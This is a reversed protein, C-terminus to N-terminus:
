SPIDGRLRTKIVEAADSALKRATESLSQAEACKALADIASADGVRGLASIMTSRAQADFKEDVVAEALVPSDEPKAFDAIALIIATRQQITNDPQHYMEVVQTRIGPEDNALLGILAAIRVRKESDNLLTKLFAITEPSPIRALLDAACTRTTGDQDPKCMERLRFAMSPEVVRRLANMALAKAGPKGQPDGLADLLPNLNELGLRKLETGIAVVRPDDLHAEGNEALAKWESLLEAATTPAQTKVPQAEGAPAVTDRSSPICATICILGTSLAATRFSIRRM